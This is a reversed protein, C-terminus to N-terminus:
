FVIQMTEICSRHAHTSSDQDQDTPVSILNSQKVGVSNSSMHEIRSFTHITEVHDQHVDDRSGGYVGM